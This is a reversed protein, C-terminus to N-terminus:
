PCLLADAPTIPNPSIQTGDSPSHPLVAVPSTGTVNGSAHGVATGSSHPSIPYPSSIPSCVITYLTLDSKCDVTNFIPAGSNSYIILDYSM